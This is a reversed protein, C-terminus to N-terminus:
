SSGAGATCGYCHNAFVIRHPTPAEHALDFITKHGISPLGLAQNFDCDYLNGQWDVSITNRCMMAPVTDPNFADILRQLYGGLRNKRNLAEAFRGIPNNTIAILNTFYIGFDDALKQHYELELSDQSPPLTPGSPNFVLTLTHKGTGYGRENLMRIGEISGAFVGDGRIKDVNRATYYPLSAFVTADVDAYVDAFHAYEPDTLICLNTRVILNAGREHASRLFWELEPHMEPAGGTVDLTTFGGVEYADIAAEMAEHSIAETRKPGCQLHCHRCALNCRYGVNVQLTSMREQTYRFEEPVREVFDPFSRMVEWTTQEPM